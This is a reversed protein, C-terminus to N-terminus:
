MLLLIHYWLRLYLCPAFAYVKTKGGDINRLALEGFDVQIQQGMPLEEEAEYDRPHNSKLLHYQERLEKVYRSVTREKFVQHCQEQLWDQIQASTVAPFQQIWGIIIAQYEDIAQKRRVSYLHTDFEETTMNWYRTVTERNIGLQKASRSKTFGLEKLQMIQHYMKFGKM